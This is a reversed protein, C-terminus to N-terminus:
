WMNDQEEKAEICKRESYRFIGAAISTPFRRIERNFKTVRDNYILRSTCVMIKYGEIADLCKIYGSSAILEPFPEVVRSISNMVTSIFTIQRIVDEPTSKSDILKDYANVTEMLKIAEQYAYEEIRKVIATLVDFSSFLQIGIQCMTNTVDEDM